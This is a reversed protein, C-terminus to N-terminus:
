FFYYYAGAATGLALAWKMITGRMVYLHALMLDMSWKPKEYTHLKDFYSEIALDIQEETLNEGTVQAAELLKERLLAKTDEINLQQEVIAQEKRLATAVDMIRIMEELSLQETPAQAKKSTETETAAPPPAVQIQPM